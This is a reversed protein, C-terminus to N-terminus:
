LCGERGFNRGRFSVGVVIREPNGLMFVELRTM